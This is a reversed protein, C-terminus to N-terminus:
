MVSDKTEPKLAIRIDQLQIMKIQCCNLTDKKMKNYVAVALLLVYGLLQDVNYQQM